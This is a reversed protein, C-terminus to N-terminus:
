FIIRPNFRTTGNIDVEMGEQAFTDAGAPDIFSVKDDMFYGMGVRWFVMSFPWDSRQGPTKEWQYRKDGADNIEEVRRMRDWEIWFDWWDDKSGYIPVRRESLEDVCLQILKNRDITVSQDEENWKALEDNKRDNRLFCTYVRNQFTEKLMKPGSIDGGSDIMMIANPYKRMLSQVEAYGNSKGYYFLGSKNGVVYNIANGTDVGIIIRSDMPNVRDTLNQFFQTSILKAGKSLYPQGLVYNHFQADTYEKKKDLIEQATIKPNMLLSIWYGSIKRDKHKRVWKANGHNYRRNLEKKCKTCGFYPKDRMINEMTLFQWHGCDCKIFWHKQDSKEWMVDVGYGPTSPNSFYWRWKYDSHQLRTSYQNVIEQKSRDIEDAIYLIPLFPSRPGNQGREM